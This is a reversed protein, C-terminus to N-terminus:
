QQTILIGIVKQLHLLCIQKHPMVKIGPIDSAQVAPNIFVSTDADNLGQAKRLQRVTKKIFAIRQAEPMRAVIQVSDEDHIVDINSAIIQLASLRTTLRQQDISDKLGGADVSDYFNKAAIYDPKNYSIDGLLMFSHSRQGPNDINYKVSKQLYKYADEYNKRIQKM